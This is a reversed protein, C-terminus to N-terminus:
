GEPQPMPQRASWTADRTLWGDGGPAIADPTGAVALTFLGTRAITRETGQRSLLAEVHGVYRGPPIEAAPLDAVIEFEGTASAQERQPQELWIRLGDDRTLAIGTKVLAPVVAFEYSVRIVLADARGLAAVRDGDENETWADLIAAVRTFSHLGHGSTWSVQPFVGEGTTTAEFYAPLVTDKPGLQVVRGQDLWLAHTCLDALSTDPQEVFITAGRSHADRLMDLAVRRFEEDPPLAPDDLLIVDPQTLLGTAIALARTRTGTPGMVASPRIGVLQYIEDLRDLLAQKPVDGVKSAVVVNQKVTFGPAMFAAVFKTTPWSKGRVLLRGASPPELGSVLNLLTTKGSKPGGVVAVMAGREIEFTAERIGWVLGAIEEEDELEPGFLDEIGTDDDDGGMDDDMGDDGGTVDGSSRRGLMRDLVSTPPKHLKIAAPHYVKAVDEVRVALKDALEGTM